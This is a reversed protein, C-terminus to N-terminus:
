ISKISWDATNWLNGAPSPRWGQLRTRVASVRNWYVLPIDPAQDFLLRSLKHYAAKRRAPDVTGSGAALLRDAQANKFRTVNSGRPPLLASHWFNTPDPDIGTDWAWMAAHFENTKLPGQPSFLVAGPITEIAVEIGVKGLDNRILTAALERPKKGSTTILRFALRRGGKSRVPGGQALWGAEDLLRGARGPDFIGRMTPDHAWSLPPHDCWAPPYLGAYAARSLAAKDIALAVARRVRVDDFPPRSTNLALHEYLLDPTRAVRVGPLNAVLPVQSQAVSQYVDLDGSKFRVFASNDDPLVQMVLRPVAPKKGHYGGYAELVLRDGPRFEGVRYPGTGIPRRNFPASNPDRERGLLHEPLIMDFLRLYPAYVGKFVVRAVDPAPTEVASIRDYGTRDIVRAGPNLAFRWTFAVDRSSFA